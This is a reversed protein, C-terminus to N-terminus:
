SSIKMIQELNRKSSEILSNKEKLREEVKIYGIVHLFTGSITALRTLINFITDDYKKAKYTAYPLFRISETEVITKDRTKLKEFVVDKSENYTLHYDNYLIQM